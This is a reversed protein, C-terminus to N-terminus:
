TSLTIWWCFQLPRQATKGHRSETVCGLLGGHSYHVAV